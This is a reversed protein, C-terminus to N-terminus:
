KFNIYNYEYEGDSDIYSLKVVKFDKLPKISFLNLFSKQVWPYIINIGVTEHDIDLIPYDSFKGTIYIIIELTDFDPYFELDIEEIGEWIKSHDMVMESHKGINNKIMPFSEKFANEIYEYHKILFNSQSKM